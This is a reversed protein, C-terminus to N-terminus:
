ADPPDNKSWQLLLNLDQPAESLSDPLIVNNLHNFTWDYGSVGNYRVSMYLLARAFDGKHSNRPEYVTQGSANQGYKGLLYSSTVSTVIGEPHNNRVGNVQDQNTPFIHHQDSYEPLNTFGSANVTPMWSQCWSHERSFHGWAFPATYVYQEGSYVCTVVKQGGTTDRSAFNAVNTEDFQDYAIRTYPSRIRTQLTTIFSANSADIGSYYTDVATQAALQVGLLVVIILLRM